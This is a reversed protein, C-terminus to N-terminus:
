LSCGLTKFGKTNSYIWTTGIFLSVVASNTSTKKQMKEYEQKNQISIWHREMVEDSKFHIIAHV